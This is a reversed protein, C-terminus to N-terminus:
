PHRLFQFWYFYVYISLAMVIFAIWWIRFDKWGRYHAQEAAPLLAYRPNWIIGDTHVAAPPATSLSVSIMVVMCFAWSILARHLYSDYPTLCSIHPFLYAQLFISFPFGSVITAMAGKSNARRWLMGLTFVVAFPPAIFAFVDQIIVFLFWGKLLTYYCAAGIGAALVFTGSWKGFRVQESETADIRGIKKYLDLTLITSTSNIMASLTSMLAAAMGALILGRFGPPVLQKVMVVYADDPRNMHPFLRYAIIGPIVFLFPTVLHLFGAGVVGMRASWEDKAALCRQVIHQSTCNYWIGISLFGTFVGTAPFLKDTPPQYLFFKHPVTALLHSLGGIKILGLVPVLLGALCLVAMQLFDTWAASILGGYITYGGTITGLLFIGVFINLGFMNQLILGGAYLSGAIVSAVYGVALFVAFIYRLAPSYRRELFEPMTFLGTRMYYPLFIWILLTYVIWANWGFAAVVIGRAYAAGVQAVFNQTAIVTAVLSTAVVYWPLNRGGMFYDNSTNKNKRAVYFGVMVTVAFYLVAVTIDLANLTITSQSPDM